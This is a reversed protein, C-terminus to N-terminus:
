SRAKPTCCDIIFQLGPASGKVWWYFYDRASGRAGEAKDPWAMLMRELKAARAGGKSTARVTITTAAVGDRTTVWVILGSDEITTTRVVQETIQM